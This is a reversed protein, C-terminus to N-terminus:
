EYLVQAILVLPEEGLCAIEHTDGPMAAILDGTELLQEERLCIHAPLFYFCGGYGARAGLVENCGNSQWKKPKYKLM